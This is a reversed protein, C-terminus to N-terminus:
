DDDSPADRVCGGGGNDGLGSSLILPDSSADDPDSWNWYPIAFCTFDHGGSATQDGLGRIEEEM